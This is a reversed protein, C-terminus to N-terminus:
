NNTIFETKSVDTDYPKFYQKLIKNHYFVTDEEGIEYSYM